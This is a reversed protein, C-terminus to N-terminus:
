DTPCQSEDKRHLWRKVPCRVKIWWWRLFRAHYCRDEIKYAPGSWDLQMEGCPAESVDVVADIEWRPLFWRKGYPWLQITEKPKILDFLWDATDDVYTGTINITQEM